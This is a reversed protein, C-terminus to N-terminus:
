EGSPSESDIPLSWTVRVSNKTVKVIRLSPTSPPDKDLTRAQVENSPPSTGKSNFAQVVFVYPSSKKLNNIVFQLKDLLKNDITKFTLPKDSNLEKYGIYYGTISGFSEIHKPAQDDFFPIM